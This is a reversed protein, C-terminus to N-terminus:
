YSKAFIWRKGSTKKGCHICIHEGKEIEAGLPLCRSVVKVKDKISLECETEECWHAFIYGGSEIGAVFDGWNDVVKKTEERYDFAKKFLAEQIEDLLSDASKQFNDLSVVIKEGTDRRVMVCNGNELDRPGLEIRVPVGKKEWEYFKEGPRVHDRIDLKVSYKEKLLSVLEKSKLLVAENKTFQIPVIVFQYPAIKPPLVLGKDDSHMMILGGILRTSM